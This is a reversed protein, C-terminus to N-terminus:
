PWVQETGCSVTPAVEAAVLVCPASVEEEAYVKRPDYSNATEVDLFRRIFALDRPDSWRRIILIRWPFEGLFFYSLGAPLAPITRAEGDGQARRNLALCVLYEKRETSEKLKLVVVRRFPSNISSAHYQRRTKPWPLAKHHDANNPGTAPPSFFCPAKTFAALRPKLSRDDRKAQGRTEIAASRLFRCVYRM